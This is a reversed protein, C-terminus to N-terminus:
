YMLIKKIESVEKKIAEAKEKEGNKMLMGIEKSLSNRKSQYNEIERLLEKKKEFLEKIEKLIDEDVGKLKLKQAFNNFDKELAKLDIM